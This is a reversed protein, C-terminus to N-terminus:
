TVLTNWYDIVPELTKSVKKFPSDHLQEFLKKMGDVADPGASDYYYAKEKTLYFRFDASFDSRGGTKDYSVALKYSEDLAAKMEDYRELGSLWWGKLVLTIAKLKGIYGISDDRRSLDMVNLEYDTLELAKEYSNKKGPLASALAMYTVTSYQEAFCRILSKTGYDLAEKSKGLNMYINSLAANNVGNYNIKKLEEIAREPDKERYLHAIQLKVTFDNIEPDTNQSIYTLARNSLEIAEDCDAMDQSEVYKFTYMTACVMLIKFTHPYRALANKAQIVAEDFKHEHTLDEILKALADVNKTSKDYGLLEDMSINYLNALEMLTSIDPVNGGNEWKSVAGITVGLSEALQEQTMNMSKRYRKINESVKLQM